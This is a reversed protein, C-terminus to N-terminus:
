SSARDLTTLVAEQNNDLLQHPPLGFAFGFAFGFDIAEFGCGHCYRLLSPSSPPSSGTSSTMMPSSSTSSNTTPSSAASSPQTM